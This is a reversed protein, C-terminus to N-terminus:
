MGIRARLALRLGDASRFFRDMHWDLRFFKGAKVHCVDYTSDCHILGLDLISVNAEELPVYKGDVYATNM